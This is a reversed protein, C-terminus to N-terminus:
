NSINYVRSIEPTPKPPGSNVLLKLVCKKYVPGAKAVKSM